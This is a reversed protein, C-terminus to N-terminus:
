SFGQKTSASLKETVRLHDDKGLFLVCGATVLGLNTTPRGDLRRRCTYESEKFVAKSILVSLAVVEVIDESM